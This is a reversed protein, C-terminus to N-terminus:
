PGGLPMRRERMTSAQKSSSRTQRQREGLRTRGLLSRLWGIRASATDAKAAADELHATVVPDTSADTARDIAAVTEEAAAHAADAGLVEPADGAVSM